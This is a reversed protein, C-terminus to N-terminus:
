VAKIKQSIGILKGIVLATRVLNTKTHQMATNIDVAENNISLLVDFYQQLADNSKLPISGAVGIVPINKAKAKVAVGYPGKGQLTQEDIKGEGTIVIDAKQLAKEFGTVSLFYEIGNVPKANCYAALGAAVGGAAGGHKISSMDIGTQQLTITNFATLAAELKIIDDESAGKQPGFIKAAGNDGLLTNEVDCVIVLECSLIRKDFENTDILNVVPLDKPIVEITKGKDDLFKIGLAQLIGIGGDVTASGGICLIIKRVKKDLADKILEGTGFTTAQLPNLEGAKLLKIGSANALEIVAATKEDDILGYSSKIKRGLADHVEINVTTGNQKQTILEATGDGGDGVPFYELSYPLESQKLGDGIAKAAATADLSNKFANPAILINM